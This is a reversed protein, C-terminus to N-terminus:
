QTSPLVILFLSGEAELKGKIDDGTEDEAVEFALKFLGQPTPGEVIQGNHGALYGTLASLSSEPNLQVLFRAQTGQAEEGGSATEYQGAPDDSTLLSFIVGSQVTLLFLAAAAAYAVQRTPFLASALREMLGPAPDAARSLPPAATEQELVVKFREAISAPVDQAEVLEITAAQDELILDLEARLSEDQQLADEVRAMEDEELTGNAYWPLLMSLEERTERDLTSM